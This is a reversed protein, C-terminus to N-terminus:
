ECLDKEKSYQYLAEVAEDVIPGTLVIFDPIDSEDGLSSDDIGININQEAAMQLAAEKEKRTALMNERKTNSHFAVKEAIFNAFSGAAEVSAVRRGIANLLYWLNRDVPKLWLFESPPLIGDTRADELMGALVSSIYRHRKVIRQVDPHKAYKKALEIGVDLSRTGGPAMNIAMRELAHRAGDKDRAIRAAFVGFLAREYKTMRGFLKVPWSAGIQKVFIETARRRDFLRSKIIQHRDIFGQELLKGRTDYVSEPRMAPAWEPSKDSILDLGVVPSIYPFEEQQLKTLAGMDLKRKVGGRQNVFLIRAGLAMVAVGFPIAWWRGADSSLMWLQKLTLGSILRRDSLVAGITRAHIDQQTSIGSMLWTEFWKVRLWVNSIWEHKLYWIIVLILVLGLTVWLWDESQGNQQNNQQTAM